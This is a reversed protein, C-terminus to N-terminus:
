LECILVQELIEGVEVKGGLFEWFGVMVKGEFCQVLLVWGDIDIFVVVFVFVFKKIM